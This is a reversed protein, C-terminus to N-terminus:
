SPRAMKDWYAKLATADAKKEQVEDDTLPTKDKKRFVDWYMQKWILQQTSAPSGGYAQGIVVKVTNENLDKADVSSEVVCCAVVSYCKQIISESQIKYVFFFADLRSIGGFDNLRIAYREDHVRQGQSAGLLETIVTTALTAIGDALPGRSFSNACKKIPEGIDESKSTMARVFTYKTLVKDIPILKSDNATNEIKEYFALLQDNAMQELVKLTELAAAEMKETGSADEAQQRITSLTGGM